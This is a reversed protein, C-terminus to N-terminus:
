PRMLLLLSWSGLALGLIVCLRLAGPWRKETEPALAGAASGDTGAVDLRGGTNPQIDPAAAGVPAFSFAQM